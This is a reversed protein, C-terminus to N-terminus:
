VTSLQLLGSLIYCDLKVAFTRASILSHVKTLIKEEEEKVVDEVCVNVIYSDCRKYLNAM